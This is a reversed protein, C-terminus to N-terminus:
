APFALLGIVAGEVIAAQIQDRRRGGMAVVTSAVAGIGRLSQQLALFLFIWKVLPVDAKAGVWWPLLAPLLLYILTYGTVAALWIAISLYLTLRAAAKLDATAMRQE